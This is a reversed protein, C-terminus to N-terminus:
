RSEKRNWPQESKTLSSAALASLLETLNLLIHDIKVGHTYELNKLSAGYLESGGDMQITYVLIGYQTRIKLILQGLLESAMGKRTFTYAWRM